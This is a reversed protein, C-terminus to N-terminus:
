AKAPAQSPVAKWAKEAKPSLKDMHQLFLTVQWIQEESLTHHFSPMGTMRIGHFVKWYTEGADDDEVGHKALQPAHQYLGVAINSPAGDAGGHCVACNERYIGIGAIMNKDDAAVPNPGKPAQREITAHLSKRAAWKELAPPRGDANAPMMGLVVFLYAGVLGAVACAAVGAIFGKLM